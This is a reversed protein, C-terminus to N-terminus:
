SDCLSSNDEKSKNQKTKGILLDYATGRHEVAEWTM